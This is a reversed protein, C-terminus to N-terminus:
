AKLKTKLEIIQNEAQQLHKKLKQIISQGRKYHEVALDIDLDSRQLEILISDLEVKLEQYTPAPRTTM